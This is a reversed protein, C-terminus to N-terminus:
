QGSEGLLDWKLITEYIYKSSDEVVARLTEEGVQAFSLNINTFLLTFVLLLVGMNRIRIKKM